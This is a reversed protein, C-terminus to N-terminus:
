RDSLENASDLSHLRTTLAESYDHYWAEFVDKSPLIKYTANSMRRLVPRLTSSVRYSKILTQRYGELIDFTEKVNKNLADLTHLLNHAIRIEDTDITAVLEVLVNIGGSVRTLEDLYDEVLDEMQSVPDNLRKSLHHFISLVVSSPKNSQKASDIEETAKRTDESVYRLTEALAYITNIFNPMAEEAGALLELFGPEDERDEKSMQEYISPPEISQKSREGAKIIQSALHAIKRRAANSKLDEFRLNTWDYNQRNNLDKAIEDRANSLGPTEVYLIPIMLDNRGLQHEREIFLRVEERCADSKLFSPTIIAILLTTNNISDKISVHWRQGAFIDERDQFIHFEKGTQIHIEEALKRRLTTIRGEDHIDDSRVYSLFATIEENGIPTMNNDDDTRM